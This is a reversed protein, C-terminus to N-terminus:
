LELFTLINTYQYFFGRNKSTKYKKRSLFAIKYSYKM